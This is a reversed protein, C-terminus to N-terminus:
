PHKIPRNPAPKVRVPLAASPLPCFFGARNSALASNRFKRKSANRFLWDASFRTQAAYVLIGSIYGLFALFSINKAYWMFTIKELGMVIVGAASGIILM